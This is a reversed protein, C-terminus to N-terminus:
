LYNPGHLLHIAAIAVPIRMRSKETKALTGNQAVPLVRTITPVSM